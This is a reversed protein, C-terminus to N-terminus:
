RKQEWEDETMNIDLHIRETQKRHITRSYIARTQAMAFPLFANLSDGYQMMHDVQAIKYDVMHRYEMYLNGAAQASVGFIRQVDRASECHCMIMMPIPAILARTLADAESELYPKQAFDTEMPNQKSIHGLLIHSIEHLLTWRRRGKSGILPNYAIFFKDDRFFSFADGSIDFLLQSEYGSFRSLQEYTMVHIHYDRAIRLPNIPFKTLGCHKFVEAAKATPHM